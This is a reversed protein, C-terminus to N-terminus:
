QNQRYKVPLHRREMESEYSKKCHEKEFVWFLGDIFKRVITWRHSSLEKRYARASLTEDPKGFFLANIMQDFAILNNMLYTM